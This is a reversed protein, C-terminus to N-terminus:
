VEKPAGHGRSMNIEAACLTNYKPRLDLAFLVGGAHVLGGLGAWGWWIM